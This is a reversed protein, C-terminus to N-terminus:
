SWCTGRFRAGPLRSQRTRSRTRRPARRISTSWSFSACSTSTASVSRNPRRIPGPSGRESSTSECRLPRPTSTRTTIRLAAESRVGWRYAFMYAYQLDAVTMRTGDHFASGLVRYTLKLKAVKGEGVPQMRGNGPAPLVAEEPVSIADTAAATPQASARRETIPEALISLSVFTYAVMLATLPVQSRLAANRTEFVQMARVHALYVAVIHGLVIATVATYWAFRAGVITIHVRYGATGFLNWGVGFPDSLLPVIYQGQVLLYTLYHALHYAIAIPVLTLSFNQAIGRVRDPPRCADRPHRAGRCPASFLGFAVLGVTRIAITVADGFGPALAAFATELGSWEPTGLVGDFLVTSLILLVLATMSSSVPRNDLLGATFPRLALERQRPDDRQFCEYCDICEGNANRCHIPCRECIAPDRVRVETPAFRAFIGFVVAFVEGHRLWTECGYVAMGTWTLISYSVALWAIHAPVAPSPYVLEVWSFALLLVFAPWVGFAEPYNLQLSLERRNGTWRCLAEVWVFATRWPNILAWLNGIFASVYALGVTAFVLTATQWDLQLM